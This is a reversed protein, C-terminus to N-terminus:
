AIFNKKKEDVKTKFSNNEAWHKQWKKEIVKFNYKDM